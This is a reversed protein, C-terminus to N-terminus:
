QKLVVRVFPPEAAATVSKGAPLFVLVPLDYILSPDLSACDVFVKPPSKRLEELQEARGSITVKVREPDIQAKFDARARVVAEVPVNEFVVTDTKTVIQASVQVEAPEIVPTWTNSPPLVKCRKSFSEIRGDVDLPETYVWETQALQQAPGKLRVVAPDCTTKEVEGGFPKGTTRCKVPVSKESERDTSIQIVEPEIHVARVNRMGRIDGVALPVPFSGTTDNARLDVVVKVQKSDILRINDQSGRVTIKVSDASQHLIAWGEGIKFEVPVNNIVSEHNITDRIAYWSAVALVLAMIKVRINNLLMDRM